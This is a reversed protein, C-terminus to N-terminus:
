YYERQLLYVTSSVRSLPVVGNVAFRKTQSQSRIALSSQVKCFTAASQRSYQVNEAM